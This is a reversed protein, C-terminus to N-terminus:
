RRARRRVALAHERARDELEAAAELQVHDGLPDLGLALARPQALEAARQPCPKRNARGSLASASSVRRTLREVADAAKDVGGERRVQERLERARGRM